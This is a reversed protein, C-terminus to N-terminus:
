IVKKLTCNSWLRFERLILYLFVARSGMHLYPSATYSYLFTACSLARNSKILMSLSDSPFLKLRLHNAPFLKVQSAGDVRYRPSQHGGLLYM